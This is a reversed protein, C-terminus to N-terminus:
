PDTNLANNPQLEEHRIIWSSVVLALAGVILLLQIPAWVRLWHTLPYSNFGNEEKIVACPHSGFITHSVLMEFVFPLCLLLIPVLPISLYRWRRHHNRALAIAALGLIAVPTYVFISAGLADESGQTCTTLQVGVAALPLAIWTFIWGM